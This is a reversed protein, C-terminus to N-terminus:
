SIVFDRQCSLYCQNRGTGSTRGPLFDSGVDAASNWVYKGSSDVCHLSGSELYYIYEGSVQVERNAPVSMRIVSSLPSSGGSAFLRAILYAALTLAVALAIAAPWLLTHQRKYDM